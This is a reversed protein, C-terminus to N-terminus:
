YISDKRSKYFMIVMSIITLVGLAIMYVVFSKEGSVYLLLYDMYNTAFPFLDELFQTAFLLVYVPIFLLLKYKLGLTSIALAFVAFIGSAIGFLFTFTIAYLVISSYYLGHVLYTTAIAQYAFNNIGYTNGMAGLPFTILNLIIELFFPAFFVLFTITFTSLMKGALYAKKDIRILFYNIERSTRDSFYSFSGPLLVLLPYYLMFFFGTMSNPGGSLTLMQMGHPLNSLDIGQYRVVNMYFNIFVLLFLFCILVLYAKRELLIKMQAKYSYLIM